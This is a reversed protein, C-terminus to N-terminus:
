KPGTLLAVVLPAALSLVKGGKEVVDYLRLADDVMQRKESSPLTPDNRIQIVVRGIISFASDRFPGVGGESFRKVSNKLLQMQATLISKSADSLSSAGFQGCLSDIASEFDPINKEFEDRDITLDHLLELTNEALHLENDCANRFNDVTQALSSATFSRTLGEITRQATRRVSSHPLEAVFGELASFVKMMEMLKNPTTSPWTAEIATMMRHNPDPYARIAKIFTEVAEVEPIITASM